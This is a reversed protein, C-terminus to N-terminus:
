LFIVLVDNELLVSGRWMEMNVDTSVEISIKVITQNPASRVIVRDEERAEVTV